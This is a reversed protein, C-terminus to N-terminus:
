QPDHHGRQDIKLGMKEITVLVINKEKVSVLQYVTIHPYSDTCLPDLSIKKRYLFSHKHKKLCDNDHIQTAYCILGITFFASHVMLSTWGM